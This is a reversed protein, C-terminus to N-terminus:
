ESGITLTLWALLTSISAKAISGSVMLKLPSSIFNPLISSTTSAHLLLCKVSIYSRCGKFVKSM